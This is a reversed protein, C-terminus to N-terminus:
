LIRTVSLTSVKKHAIRKDVLKVLFLSVLLFAVGTIFSLIEYNSYGGGKFIMNGVAIGAILFFLPVMYVLATFKLINKANGQIEVFDGVKANLKNPVTIIHPAVECSGSCSNCGGGGCASVRRVELEMNNGDIKRVFGVQEM